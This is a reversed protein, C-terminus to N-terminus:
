NNRDNLICTVMLLNIKLNSFQFFPIAAEGSKKIHLYSFFLRNKLINELLYVLKM